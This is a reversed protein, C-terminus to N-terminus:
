QGEAGWPFCNTQRCIVRATESGRLDCFVLNLESLCCFAM